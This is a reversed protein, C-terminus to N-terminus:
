QDIDEKTLILSQHKIKKLSYQKLLKQITYFVFDKDQHSQKQYYSQLHISFDDEVLLDKLKEMTDKVMDDVTYEPITITYPFLMKIDQSDNQDMFAIIYLHPYQKQINKIWLADQIHDLILVHINELVISSSKHDIIQYNFSQIIHHYYLLQIIDQYINMQDDKPGIIGLYPVSQSLQCYHIFGDIDDLMEDNVKSKLSTVVENCLEEDSKLYHIFSVPLNDQRIERHDDACDTLQSYFRTDFTRVNAWEESHAMQFDQMWHRILPEIPANLCLSLQDQKLKKYLIDELQQATYDQLIIKTGFRSELGEYSRILEMSKKEYGAVVFVVDVYPNTMAVLITNMIEQEYSANISQDDGSAFSYIEDLFLIGGKAEQIKQNTKAASQGVYEGKLTSKSAEVVHGDKVLGIKKLSLGYNRAVTTKGTGPNGLIIMNMKLKLHEPLTIENKTNNFRFLCTAPIDQQQSKVIKQYKNQLLAIHHNVEDIGIMEKNQESQKQQELLNKLQKLHKTVNHNFISEQITYLPMQTHYSIFPITRELPNLISMDNKIMIALRNVDESRHDIIVDHNLNYEMLQNVLLNEIEDVGLSHLIILRDQLVQKYQQQLMIYDSHNHQIYYCEPIFNKYKRAFEDLQGINQFTFIMINETDVYNQLIQLSRELEQSFYHTIGCPFIIASKHNQQRLIPIFYHQFAELVDKEHISLFPYELKEDEVEPMSLFSNVDDWLLRDHSQQTTPSTLSKFVSMEEEHDESVFNLSQFDDRYIYVHEYHEQERLLEELFDDFYTYVRNRTAFYDNIQGVVFHVVGAKASFM